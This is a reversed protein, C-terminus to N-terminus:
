AAQAKSLTEVKNNLKKLRRVISDVEKQSPLNLLAPIEQIQGSIAKELKQKGPVKDFAKKGGDVLAVMILRTDQGVGNVISKYDDVVGAMKDRANNQLDEVLEKGDDILRSVTKRPNKGTKALFSRSEKVAGNVKARTERNLDTIYENGDEFIDVVTKLPQKKLNHALTKGSKLPEEILKQNYEGLVSLLNQRTEQVTKVVYFRSNSKSTAKKKSNRDTKAKAM